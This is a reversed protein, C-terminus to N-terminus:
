SNQTKSSTYYVQQKVIARCSPLPVFSICRVLPDLSYSRLKHVCEKIEQSMNYKFSCMYTHIPIFILQQNEFHKRLQTYMDIYTFVFDVEM